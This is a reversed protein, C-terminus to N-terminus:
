DQKHRLIDKSDSKFLETNFLCENKTNVLFNWSKFPLTHWHHFFFLHILATSLASSSM